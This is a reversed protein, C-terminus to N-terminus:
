VADEIVWIGVMSLQPPPGLQESPMWFWSSVPTSQPPATHRAQVVQESPMWFWPSVPTSQPPGHGGQEQTGMGPAQVTLESHQSPFQPSDPSGESTLTGGKSGVGIPWHM